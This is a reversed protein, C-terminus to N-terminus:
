HVPNVEGKEKKRERKGKKGIKSRVGDARFLLDRRSFIEEGDIAVGRTPLALLERPRREARDEQM